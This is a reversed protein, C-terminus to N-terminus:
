HNEKQKIGVMKGMHWVSPSLMVNERIPIYVMAGDPVPVDHLLLVSDAPEETLIFDSTAAILDLDNLIIDKVYLESYNSLVTLRPKEHAYDM